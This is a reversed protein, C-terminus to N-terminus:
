GHSGELCLRLDVAAHVQVYAGQGLQHGRGLQHVPGEEPVPLGQGAGRGAVDDGYVCACDACPNNM